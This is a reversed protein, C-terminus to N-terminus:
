ALFKELPEWYNGNWGEALHPGQGDPFGVHDFVLKTGSGTESLEFRAISYVGPNWIVVRWAQVIRRNPVLEIQRGLIHGGFLTFAGGEERSIQTPKDGLSAGSRVAASMQAVKEFQKADTLADYVRKPAAKFVVEQHISEANHSLGEQFPPPASLRRAGLGSFAVGALALVQRRTTPTQFAQIGVENM